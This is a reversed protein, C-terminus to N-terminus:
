CLFGASTVDIRQGIADFAEIEASAAPSTPYEDAFLTWIMTDRREGDADAVRQRLTAEHVFGLKRPIAASRVNQPDCHIEVRNVEDVEFAVKTLAAATETALGQNIYDQHIWYGIERAGEGVRTHLGTGGLVQSEDPSFIGYVFDRDMDFKGRARRLWGVRDQLEQPEDQAWPMWPRLHDLSEEIAAKLLAADSPQWCRIILRQTQIRYAPGPVSASM